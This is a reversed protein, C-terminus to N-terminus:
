FNCPGLNLVSVSSANLSHCSYNVFIISLVSLSASLCIFMGPYIFGEPLFLFM